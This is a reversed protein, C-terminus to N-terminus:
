RTLPRSWGHHAAQQENQVNNAELKENSSVDLGHLLPVDTSVVIVKIKSFLDNPALIRILKTGQSFSLGNGLKYKILSPKLTYRIKHQKCYAIAQRKGSISEHAVTDLCGDLFEHPDRSHFTPRNSFRLIEETCVNITAEIQYSPQSSEM